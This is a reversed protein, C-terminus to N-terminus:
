GLQLIIVDNVHVVGVEQDQETVPHRLEVEVASDDDGARRASLAQRLLSQGPELSCNLIMSVLRVVETQKIVSVARSVPQSSDM